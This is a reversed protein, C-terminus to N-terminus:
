KSKSRALIGTIRLMVYEWNRKHQSRTWRENGLHLPCVYFRRGDVDITTWGSEVHPDSKEKLGCMCCEMMEGMFPVQGPLTM